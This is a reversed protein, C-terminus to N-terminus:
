SKIAIVLYNSLKWFEAPDTIEIHSINDGDSVLRFSSSPHETVVDVKSADLYLKDTSRIDVETFNEVVANDALQTSKGLGLFGGEKKILQQKELEDKSGIAIFATHSKLDQKLL